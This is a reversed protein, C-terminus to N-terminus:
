KKVVIRNKDNYKLQKRYQLYNRISVGGFVGAVVFLVAQPFPLFYFLAVMAAKGLIAPIWMNGGFLHALKVMIGNVEYGGASIVLKTTLLDTIQTAIVALLAPTFM